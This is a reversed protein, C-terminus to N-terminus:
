LKPAQQVTTEVLRITNEESNVERNERQIEGLYHGLFIPVHNYHWPFLKIMLTRNPEYIENSDGLYPLLNGM